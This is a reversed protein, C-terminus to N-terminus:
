RRPRRHPRVSGAAGTEPPDRVGEVIKGIADFKAWARALQKRLAGSETRLEDIQRQLSRSPDHPADEGAKSRQVAPSKTDRTQRIQDSVLSDYRPDIGIVLRDITVQFGLAIKVLNHPKPHAKGREWKAYQPQKVGIRRAVEEQSIERDPDIRPLERRLQRLNRAISVPLTYGEPSGGCLGAPTTTLPRPEDAM